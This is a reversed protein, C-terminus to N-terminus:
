GACAWWGFHAGIWGLTRDALAARFQEIDRASSAGRTNRLARTRPSGLAARVLSHDAPGEDQVEIGPRASGTGYITLYGGLLAIACASLFLPIYGSPHKAMAIVSGRYSQMMREGLGSHDFLREVAAARIVDFAVRPGSEHELIEALEAGYRERWAAPYLRVLWPLRAGSM